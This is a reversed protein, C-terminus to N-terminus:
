RRRGLQNEVTSPLHHRAARDKTVRAIYMYVTYMYVWAYMYAHMCAHMCVYMCVFMCMYIYMCTYMSAYICVYMCVNLENMCEYKFVLEYM